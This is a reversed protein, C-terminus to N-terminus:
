LYEHRSNAGVGLRLDLKKEKSFGMGREGGRGRRDRKEGKEGKKKFSNERSSNRREEESRRM